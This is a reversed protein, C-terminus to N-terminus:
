FLSLHFMVSFIFTEFLPRGNRAASTKGEFITTSDSSSIVLNLAAMTVDGTAVVLGALGSIGAKYEWWQKSNHHDSNRRLKVQLPGPM